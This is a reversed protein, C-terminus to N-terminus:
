WCNAIKEKIDHLEAKYMAITNETNNYMTHFANKTIKNSDIDRHNKEHYKRLKKMYTEFYRIVNQYEVYKAIYAERFKYSANSNIHKIYDAGVNYKIELKEIDSKIKVSM